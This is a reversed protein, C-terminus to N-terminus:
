SLKKDPTEEALPLTIRFTTGEGETSEAHIEGQHANIIQRCIYLGLGSGRQALKTEPIRYFRQFIKELHEEEIGPGDDAVLVQAWGGERSLTVCVTSGPAYKSANSLLNDFVQGMRMPDANVEMGPDKIDFQVKLNFDGLQTRQIMDRLLVDLEVRQFKMPLTGSQLRSSDLLNDILAQLRDAEDDIIGLFERYTPVDWETDERLLTTTYGKIFGLPTRLDHSVTAVFNEQMKWMRQSGEVKEITSVLRERELLHAVNEAVYELRSIDKDSYAPSGFRILVLVGIKKNGQRLPTGLYMRANVRDEKPEGIEEHFASTKNQFYIKEAIETGWPLEAEKSRGRGVARAFYPQLENEDPLYIILNDFVVMRRTLSVLVPLVSSADDAEAVQRSIEFIIALLADGSVTRDGM